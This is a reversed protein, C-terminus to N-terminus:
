KIRRYLTDNGSSDKVNLISGNLEYETTFTGSEYVISIENGNTTYTFPMDTGAANYNGTGDTNFTYVFYIETGDLETDDFQWQGIITTNETDESDNESSSNNPDFNGSDGNNAQNNNIVIATVAIIIAVVIAVISIIIPTKNKM